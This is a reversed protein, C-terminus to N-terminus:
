LYQLIDEKRLKEIFNAVFVNMAKNRQEIMQVEGIWQLLLTQPVRLELNKARLEEIGCLVIGQVSQEQALQYVKEWDVDSFLSDNVRFGEGQIPINGWLGTRVLELFAKINNNYEM